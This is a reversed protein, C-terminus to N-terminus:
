TEVIGKKRLRVRLARLHAYFAQLPVAKKQIVCSIVCFLPVVVGFIWTVMENGNWVKGM